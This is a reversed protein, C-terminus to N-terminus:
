TLSYFVHVETIPFHPIYTACCLSSLVFEKGIEVFSFVSGAPSKVHVSVTTFIGRCISVCAVNNKIFMGM